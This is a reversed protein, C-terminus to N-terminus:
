MFYYVYLVWWSGSNVTSEWWVMSANPFRRMYKRYSALKRLWRQLTDRPATSSVRNPALVALLSWITTTLFFCRVLLALCEVLRPSRRKTSQLLKLIGVTAKVINRTSQSASKLQRWSKVFNIFKRTTSAVCYSHKEQLRFKKTFMSRWDCLPYLGWWVRRKYFKFQCDFIHQEVLFFFIMRLTLSMQLWHDAPHLIVSKAVPSLLNSNTSLCILPLGDATYAHLHPQTM